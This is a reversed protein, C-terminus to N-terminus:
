ATVEAKACPFHSFGGQMFPKSGLIVSHYELNTPIGSLTTAALAARMQATAAARDDAHVMLKAILSDYFPTIETGTEVWTDVRAGQVFVLLDCVGLPRHLCKNADAKLCSAKKM